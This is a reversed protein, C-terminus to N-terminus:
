PLVGKAKGDVLALFFAFWFQPLPRGSRKLGADGNAPPGWLGRYGPGGNYGTIPTDGPWWVQRKRDVVFDYTRGDAQHGQKCMWPQLLAGADGITVGAPHVVRGLAGPTPGVDPGPIDGAVPSDDNSIEEIAWWLGAIGGVGGLPGFHTLGAITKALLIATGGAVDLVNLGEPSPPTEVKGCHTSYYSTGVSHVGQPGADLYLSHTGKAVYLKPHDDIRECDAFPSLKMICGSVIGQATGAPPLRGTTGIFAPKYPAEDNDRELLISLSQWDGGFCAFEKAEVNTCSDALSEQHAPFFFYYTLLAPNKLVALAALLDPPGTGALLTRLRGTEFLEAYYWFRSERLAKIGGADDANNYLAPIAAHNSYTNATTALVGPETAGAKDRWGNLELFRTESDSEVLQTGLFTGPEGDAAAIAGHAIVPSRAFPMGKGGWSEKESIPMDSRWLACREVYRKPDSPFFEEDKHFYCIPEFRRALTETRAVIGIARIELAIACMPGVAGGAMSWDASTDEGSRQQTQLVAAKGGGIVQEHIETFGTGPQIAAGAATPASIAAGVCLNDLPDQFASLAVAITAVAATGSSASPSQVIPSAGPATPFDIGDFEFVSWACHSQTQGAFSFTLVGSTPAAGNARFCSLRFDQGGRCTATAVKSWTLGNGSVLPEAALGNANNVNLIFVLVLRNPQPAIVQTAYNSANTTVAQTTLDYRAM